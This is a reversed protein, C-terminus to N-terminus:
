GARAFMRLVRTLVLSCLLWACVAVFISIPFLWNGLLDQATSPDDIYGLFAFSSGAWLGVHGPEFLKWVAAVLASIGAGAICVVLAFGFLAILSRHIRRAVFMFLHTTHGTGLAAAADREDIFHRAYLDASGFDALIEKASTGADLAESIHAAAESVIEDREQVPISSLAWKLRRLWENTSGDATDPTM